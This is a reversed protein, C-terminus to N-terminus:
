LHHQHLKGDPGKVDVDEIDSLRKVFGCIDGAESTGDLIVKRYNELLMGMEGVQRMLAEVNAQLKQTRGNDLKLLESGEQASCVAIISLVYLFIM